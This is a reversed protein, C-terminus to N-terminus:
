FWWWLQHRLESEHALRGSREVDRRDLQGAKFRIIQDGRIRLCREGLAVIDDDDGRVLVQHLQDTVADAHEIRDLVAGDARGFHLLLKTYRRVLHNINLRQTTVAHVIHRAYRADPDLRRSLQDTKVAIEIRKQFAGMLDLLGLAALGQHGVGIQRPDAPLQHAQAGIHRQRHSQALKALAVWIMVNQAGKQGLLPKTGQDLFQIAPLQGRGM